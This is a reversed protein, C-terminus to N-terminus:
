SKVEAAERKALEEELLEIYAMLERIIVGIYGFTSYLRAVEWAKRGLLDNRHAQNIAM